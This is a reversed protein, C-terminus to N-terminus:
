QGIYQWVVQEEGILDQAVCTGGLYWQFPESTQGQTLYVSGTFVTNQWARTTSTGERFGYTLMGPLLFPNYALQLMYQKISVSWIYYGTKHAIISGNANITTKINKLTTLAFNGMTTGTCTTNATKRGVAVLEPYLSGSAIEGEEVMEDWSTGNFKYLRGEYIANEGSGSNQSALALMGKFPSAVTTVDTKSILPVRTILFGKKASSMELASSPAPTATGIGIQSKLGTTFLFPCLILFVRRM